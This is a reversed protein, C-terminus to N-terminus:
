VGRKPGDVMGIIGDIRVNMSSRTQRLVKRRFMIRVAKVISPTIM